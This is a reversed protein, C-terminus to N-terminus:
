YSNLYMLFKDALQALYLRKSSKVVLARQTLFSLSVHIGIECKREGDLNTRETIQNQSNLSICDVLALEILMQECRDLIRRAVFRYPEIMTAEIRIGTVFLYHFLFYATQETTRHQCNPQCRPPMSM